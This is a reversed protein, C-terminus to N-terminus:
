KLRLPDSMSGVGGRFSVVIDFQSVLIIGGPALHTLTGYVPPTEQAGPQRHIAPFILPTPPDNKFGHSIKLM